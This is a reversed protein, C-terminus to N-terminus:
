GLSSRDRDEDTLHRHAKIEPVRGAAPDRVDRATSTASVDDLEMLRM